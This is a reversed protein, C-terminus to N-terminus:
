RDGERTFHVYGIPFLRSPVLLFLGHIDTRIRPENKDFIDWHKEKGFYSGAIFYVNILSGFHILM